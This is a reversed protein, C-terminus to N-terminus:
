DCGDHWQASQRLAEEGFRQALGYDGYRKLLLNSNSAM